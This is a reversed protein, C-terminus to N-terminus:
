SESKFQRTVKQVSVRAETKVSFRGGDADVDARCVYLGSDATKTERIKLISRFKPKKEEPFSSVYTLVTKNLTTSYSATMYWFDQAEVVVVPFLAKGYKQM